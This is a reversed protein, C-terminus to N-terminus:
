PAAGGIGPPQSPDHIDGAERAAEVAEGRSHVGFHRYITLSEVRVTSESFRILKAIERNTLGAAMAELIEGQRVTLEGDGEGEAHGTQTEDLHRESVASWLRSVLTLRDVRHRLTEDDDAIMAVALVGHLTGAHVLPLCVSVQRPGHPEQSMVVPLGQRLREGAAPDTWICGIAWALLGSDPLSTAERHISATSSIGIVEISTLDEAPVIRNVIEPVLRALSESSATLVLLDLLTASDWDSESGRWADAKVARTRWGPAESSTPM